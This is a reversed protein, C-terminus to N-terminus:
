RSCLVVGHELPSPNVFLYLSLSLSLFDYLFTLGEEMWRVLEESVSWFCGSFTGTERVSKLDGKGGM